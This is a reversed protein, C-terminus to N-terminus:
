RIIEIFEVTYTFTSAVTYWSRFWLDAQSSAKFRGIFKNNGDKVWPSTLGTVRAVLIKQTDVFPNVTVTYYQCIDSMATISTGYIENYIDTLSRKTNGLTDTLGQSQSNKSVAILGLFLILFILIKKM